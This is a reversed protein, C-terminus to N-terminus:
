KDEDEDISEVPEDANDSGGDEDSALVTEDSDAAEDEEVPLAGDEFIEEVALTDDAEDEDGAGLTVDEGKAQRAAEEESRAVNIDVSVEVEPHLSVTVTQVGLVKIPRDLLVQNREVHFGNETILDAIDRSSVSGYLQGTDGAQRIAIFSEGDLKEGVKEAEGKAELNRAELQARETEFRQRNMENARLAKGQPILYNRAFGDKVTVIEGMQGLKRIRELLIIEM